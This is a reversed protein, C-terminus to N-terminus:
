RGERGESVIAVSDTGGTLTGQLRKYGPRLKRTLFRNGRGPEAIAELRAIPRGRETVTISGLEAARKVWAGTKLHLERISISTMHCM